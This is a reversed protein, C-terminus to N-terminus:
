PALTKALLAVRAVHLQERGRGNEVNWSHEETGCVRYGLREYLGRARPNDEEVGILALRLGRRRIRREAEEILRTGLGRGRLSEKTTLQWLTGAGPHAEYDIGGIAVPEGDPTRVALYEVGGGAVRELAAAVYRLHTPGGSWGIRALDNSNLDDVRLAL